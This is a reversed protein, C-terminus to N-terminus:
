VEEGMGGSGEHDDGIRQGSERGNRTGGEPRVVRMGSRGGSRIV